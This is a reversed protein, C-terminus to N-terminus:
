SPQDSLKLVHEDVISDGRELDGLHKGAEDVVSVRGTRPDRGLYGAFTYDGIESPIHQFLAEDNRREALQGLQAALEALEPTRPRIVVLRQGNTQSRVIIRKV